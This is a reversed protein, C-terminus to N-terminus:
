YSILPGHGADRLHAAEPTLASAVAHRWHEAADM